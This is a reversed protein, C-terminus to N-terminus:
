KNPSFRASQHALVYVLLTNILLYTIQTINERRFVYPQANELVYADTGGIVTVKGTFFAVSIWLVLISIVVLLGLPATYILAERNLPQRLLLIELATRMILLLALAYGPQLGVSGVNVVAAGHLLAFSPLAMLMFRWPMFSLVIALPILILGTLTM